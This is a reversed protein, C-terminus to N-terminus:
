DRACVAKSDIIMRAVTSDITGLQARVRVLSLLRMFELLAIVQMRSHLEPSGAIRSRWAAQVFRVMNSIYTVREQFVLTKTKLLKRAQMRRVACQIKTAMAHAVGATIHLGRITKALKRVTFARFTKQILIAARHRKQQKRACYARYKRQIVVAASIRKRHAAKRRAVALFRRFARQVVLVSQTLRMEQPPYHSWSKLTPARMAEEFATRRASEPSVLARVIEAMRGAKFFSPVAKAGGGAAGAAATTGAATKASAGAASSSSSDTAASAAPAPSPATLAQQMKRTSSMVTAAAESAANLQSVSLRRPGKKTANVQSLDLTSLLSRVPTHQSGPLQSACDMAAVRLYAPPFYAFPYAGFNVSLAPQEIRQLLDYSGAKGVGAGGDARPGGVGRGRSSSAIGSGSVGAGAGGAGGGGGRSAADGGRSGGPGNAIYDFLSMANGMAAAAATAELRSQKGKGKPSPLTGSSSSGASTLSLTNGRSGPTASSGSRNSASSYSSVLSAVTSATSDKAVLKWLTMNTSASGITHPKTGAPAADSSRGGGLAAVTSMAGGRPVDESAMDLDAGQQEAQLLPRYIDLLVSKYGNNLGKGGRLSRPSGLTPSGDDDNPSSSSGSSASSSSSSSSAGNAPNNANVLMRVAARTFVRPAAPYDLYPISRYVRVSSAVAALSNRDSSADTDGNGELDVEEVGDIYDGDNNAGGASSLTHSGTARPSGVGNVGVGASSSLSSPSRLSPSGSASDGGRPSGLGGGARNRTVGLGLIAVTPTLTQSRILNSQAEQLPGSWLPCDAGFVQCFKGGDLAVYIAGVFLDILVGIVACDEPRKVTSYRSTFPGEFADEEELFAPDEVYDGSTNPAFGPHISGSKSSSSPRSQGLADRPSNFVGSNASSSADSSAPANANFQSVTGPATSSPSAGPRRDANSAPRPQNKPAAGSVYASGLVQPLFQTNFLLSGDSCIAMGRFIPAGFKFSPDVNFPGKAFGLMWMHSPSHPHVEMYFRGWNRLLTFRENLLFRATLALQRHGDAQAVMKATSGCKMFALYRLVRAQRDMTSENARAKAVANLCRSLYAAIAPPIGKVGSSSSGGAGAGGAGGSGTSATGAAAATSIGAASVSSAQAGTATSSLAAADGSASTPGVGTCTAAATSSTTAAATLTVASASPNTTAAHRELLQEAVDLSGNLVVEMIDLVHAATFTEDLKRALFDVAEAGPFSHPQSSRLSPDTNNSLSSSSPSSSSLAAAFPSADAASSDQGGGMLSSSSMADFPIGSGGGGGGGGAAAGFIGGGAHSSAAASASANAVAAMAFEASWTDNVPLVLNSSLFLLSSNPNNLNDSNNAFASSSSSFSSSYGSSINASITSSAPITSSLSAQQVHQMDVPVVTSAKVGELTLASLSYEHARRIIYPAFSAHAYGWVPTRSMPSLHMVTPSHYSVHIVCSSLFPDFRLRATEIKHALASVLRYRPVSDVGFLGKMNAPGRTGGSGGNGEGTVSSASASSSSSSSSYSSLMDASHFTDRIADKDTQMLGLAPAFGLEIAQAASIALSSDQISGIFTDPREDRHLPVAHTRLKMHAVLRDVQNLVQKGYHALLVSTAMQEIKVGQQRREFSAWVTQLSQARQEHLVQLRLFDQQLLATQRAHKARARMSPNCICAVAEMGLAETEYRLLLQSETIKAAEKEAKLQKLHLRRRAQSHGSVESGWKLVIGSQLKLTHARAVDFHTLGARAAVYWPKDDFYVYGDEATSKSATRILSQPAEPAEYAVRHWLQQLQQQPQQQDLSPQQQLREESLAGNKADTGSGLDDNQPSGVRGDGGGSTSARTGAGTTPTASSLPATPSPMAELGQKRQPGLNGSRGGGAQGAGSSGSSSSSSSSSSPPSSSSSGYLSLDEEDAGADETDGYEDTRKAQKMVVTWPPPASTFTSPLAMSSLLYAADDDEPSTGVPGNNSNNNNNIHDEGGFALPSISRQSLESPM